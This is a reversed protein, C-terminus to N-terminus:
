EDPRVYKHQTWLDPISCRLLMAPKAQVVPQTKPIRLTVAFDTIAQLQRRRPMQQLLQPWRQPNQQLMQRQTQWRLQHPRQQQKRTQRLM